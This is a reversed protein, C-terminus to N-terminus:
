KPEVGYLGMMSCYSGNEKGNDSYVGLIYEM